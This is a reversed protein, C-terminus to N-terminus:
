QADGQVASAPLAVHNTTYEIAEGLSAHGEVPLGSRHVGASWIEMATAHANVTQAQHGYHHLRDIFAHPRGKYEGHDCGVLYVRRYGMAIAASLGWDLATINRVLPLDRRDVDDVLDHGTFRDHVGYARRIIRTGHYIAAPVHVTNVETWDVYAWYTAQWGRGQLFVAYNLALVDQGALLGLENEMLSAGCGLIFLHERRKAAAAKLAITM